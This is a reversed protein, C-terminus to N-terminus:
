MLDRTELGFENLYDYLYYKATNNQEIDDLEERFRKELSPWRGKISELAYVVPHRFSGSMLITNEARNTVDDSIDSVMGWPSQLIDLAYELIYDPSGSYAIYKEAEPWRSGKRFIIPTIVSVSKKTFGTKSLEQEAQDLLYQEYEPWSGKVVNLQYLRSAEPNSMITPEAEPWRGKIIFQAYKVATDPDKIFTKEAEPYRTPKVAPNTLEENNYVINLFYYYLLKPNDSIKKELELWRGRVVYKAYTLLDDNDEKNLLQEEKTAFLKSLVPHSNRYYLLTDPDVRYLKQNAEDAFDLTEWHFQYKKNTKRDIWIYLNGQSSYYDFRNQNAAATCWRSNQGWFCSAEQTRPVVLMGLDGDYLVNSQNKIEQSVARKEQKKSKFEPFLHEYNALMNVLDGVTQIRLIDKEPLISKYRHFDSLDERITEGDELIFNRNAYQKVIWRMYMKNSTPDFSELINMVSELSKVAAYDVPNIYVYDLLSVDAKMADILKQRYSEITKQRDYELLLKELKM